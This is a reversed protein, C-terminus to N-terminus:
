TREELPPDALDASRRKQWVSRLEPLLGRALERATSLRPPPRQGRRVDHYARQLALWLYAPYAAHFRGPYHKGIVLHSFELESRLLRLPSTFRRGVGGPVDLRRLIRPEPDYVFYEGRRRAHAFKLAFSDEDHDDVLDWGGVRRIAELRIASNTGAVQTVDRIRTAHYTYGRPMKLLSYRLCRRRQLSTAPAGLPEDLAYLHRGSVAVCEPDAFNRVFASIWSRGVPLDDDDLFILLEGRASQWAVNRARAPGLRGFELLRVRADARLADLAVQHERRAQEGSQEVILLEFHPYDQALVIPALAIVEALRGHSRVAVTVLPTDARLSGDTDRPKM